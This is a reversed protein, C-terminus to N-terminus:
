WVYKSSIHAWNTRRKIARVRSYSYGMDRIESPKYGEQLLCCIDEVEKVSTKCRSNRSGKASRNNSNYSYRINEGHTVWRLNSVHNNYRDSDIHDVDSLNEPNPIWAEAVFRHVSKSTQRYGDKQPITVILYGRGNDYPKLPRGRKGIITGKNSVKYGLPHMIYEETSM